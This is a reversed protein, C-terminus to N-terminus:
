AGNDGGDPVRQYQERVRIVRAGSNTASVQAVYGNYSHHKAARRLDRQAPCAASPEGDRRMGLGESGELLTSM